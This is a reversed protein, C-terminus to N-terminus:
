LKYFVNLQEVMYLAMWTLDLTMRTGQLYTV